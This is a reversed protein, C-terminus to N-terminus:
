HRPSYFGFSLSVQDIFNALVLIPIHKPVKPAERKVYDFTWAKTVDFIIIVGHAGKYVDVFEADLAPQEFNPLEGQAMKLGELQKRKKGKDVVDWVEVKVIDDTAKYNWQISAVSIEDSPTYSEIFSGGQMAFFLFNLELFFHKMFMPIYLAGKFDTVASDGFFLIKKYYNYM